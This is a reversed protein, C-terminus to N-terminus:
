LDEGNARNYENDYFMTIYYKGVDDKTITFWVLRQSYKDYAHLILTQKVEKQFVESADSLQEKTYNINLFFEMEREYAKRDISNPLQYYSAEYQKNNVSIEYAINEKEPLYFNHELKVPVYKENQQFQRCLGNFRIKITNIDSTGYADSVVIRRVKKKVTVIQIISEIGNFEGHLIDSNYFDRKFGKKRLQRIMKSKSGDVPIGLFTTVEQQGYVVVSMLFLTLVSLLVRKMANVKLHFLTLPKGAGAM